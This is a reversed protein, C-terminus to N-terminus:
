LYGRLADFRVQLATVEERIKSAEMPVASSSLARLISGAIARRIVAGWRRRTSWRPAGAQGTNLNHPFRMLTVFM